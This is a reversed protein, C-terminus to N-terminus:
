GRMKVLIPVNRNSNSIDFVTSGLTIDSQFIADQAIM